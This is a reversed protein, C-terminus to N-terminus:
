YTSDIIRFDTYRGEPLDIEEITKEDIRAFSPIDIKELFDKDDVMIEVSDRTNRVTGLLGHAKAANLVAYRFGVGHVRGYLNIRYFRM